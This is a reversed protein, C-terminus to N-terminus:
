LADRADGSVGLDVTQSTADRFGQTGDRDTLGHDMQNPSQFGDFGPPVYLVSEAEPDSCGISLVLGAALWLTSNFQIRM